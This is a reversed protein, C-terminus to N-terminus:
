QEEDSPSSPSSGQAEAAIEKVAAVYARPSIDPSEQALQALRANIQGLEDIAERRTDESMSAYKLMFLELDRRVCGYNAGAIKHKEAREAFGFFTQLAAFTAALLSVTGAIIKVTADPQSDLTAFISTGVVTTTVVVPVGLMLNGKRARDVAKYHARATRRVVKRYHNAQDIIDDM